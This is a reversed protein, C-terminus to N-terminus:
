QCNRVCWWYWNEGNIIVVSVSITILLIILLVLPLAWILKKAINEYMEFNPNERYPVFIKVKKVNKNDRTMNKMGWNVPDNCLTTNCTTCVKETSNNYNHAETKHLCEGCGYVYSTRGAILTWQAYCQDERRSSCEVEKLDLLTHNGSPM